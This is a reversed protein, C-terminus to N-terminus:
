APLTLTLGAQSALQKALDPNEMVIRHQETISITDKAWPNIMHSGAKQSSGGPATVTSGKLMHKGEAHASVQKSAWADFSVNRGDTDVMPDKTGPLYGVFNGDDDITAEDGLIKYLISPPYACKDKIFASENFMTKVKESRMEEMLKAHKAEAQALLANKGELQLALAKEKDQWAKELSAKNAQLREEFKSADTNELLRANAEKLEAHEKAYSAFDAVDKLPEIKKNLESCQKRYKEEGKRIESWKAQTEAYDVSIEKGDGDQVFIPNGKDDKALHGSDDVKWAM